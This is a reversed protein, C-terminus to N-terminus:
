FFYRFSLDSATVPFCQGLGSWGFIRYSRIVSSRWGLVHDAGEALIANFGMDEAMKAIDNSYILETNRFISPTVGFLDRIKKRHLKVQNKFEEPSYVSSLSHHYTESLLEINGTNVLKKFSDIVEPVYKEFQELATGSISFSAKFEPNNKINELLVANAPLYCKLAVKEM